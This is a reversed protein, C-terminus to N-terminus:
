FKGFCNMNKEVAFNKAHRAQFRRRERHRSIYFTGVINSADVNRLKQPACFCATMRFTMRPRKPRNLANHRKVDFQEGRSLTQGVFYWLKSFFIVCMADVHTDFRTIKAGAFDIGAM